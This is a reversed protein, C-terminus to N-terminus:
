YTQIGYSPQHVSNSTELIKFIDSLDAPGAEPRVENNVKCSRLLQCDAAQLRCDAIKERGQRCALLIGDIWYEM